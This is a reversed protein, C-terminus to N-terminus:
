LIFLLLHALWPLHLRVREILLTAGLLATTPTIPFAVHQILYWMSGYCIWIWSGKGSQIFSNPSYLILKCIDSRYMSFTTSPPTTYPSHPLTNASHIFFSVTSSRYISERGLLNFHTHAHMSTHSLSSKYHPNSLLSTRFVRFSHPMGVDM